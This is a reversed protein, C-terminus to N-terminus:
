IYLNLISIKEVKLISNSYDQKSLKMNQIAKNDPKNHSSHKITMVNNIAITEAVNSNLITKARCYPKTDVLPRFPAM